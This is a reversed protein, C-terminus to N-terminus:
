CLGLNLLVVPLFVRCDLCRFLLDLHDGLVPMLVWMPFCSCLTVVRLAISLIGVFEASHGSVIAAPLSVLRPSHALAM